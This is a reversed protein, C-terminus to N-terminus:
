SYAWAVVAAIKDASVFRAAEVDAARKSEATVHATVGARLQLVMAANARVCLMGLSAARADHEVLVGFFSQFALAARAVALRAEYLAGRRARYDDVFPKAHVASAEEFRGARYAAVMPRADEHTTCEAVVEAYARAVARVDDISIAESSM